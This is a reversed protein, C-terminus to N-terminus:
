LNNVTKGMLIWNIISLGSLSIFLMLPHIWAMLEGIIACTGAEGAAYFIMSNFSNDRHLKVGYKAPLSYLYPYYPSFITGMMLASSFLM